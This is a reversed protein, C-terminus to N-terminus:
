APRRSTRRPRPCSMITRYMEVERPNAREFARRWEPRIEYDSGDPNQNTREMRWEVGLLACLRAMDAEFHSMRGIFDFRDLPVDLLASFTENPLAVFESLPTETIWRFEPRGKRRHYHWASVRAELPDRVFTILRRGRYRSAPFHGHIASPLLRHRLKWRDVQVGPYDVLLRSGYKRKLVSRLTAGGCKPVHVSVLDLM